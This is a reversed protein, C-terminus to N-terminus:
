APHEAHFGALIREQWGPESSLARDTADGEVVLYEWSVPRVEILTGDPLPGVTGGSEPLTLVVDHFTLAVQEADEVAEDLTAVARCSLVEHTVREIDGIHEVVRRKTTVLYPM